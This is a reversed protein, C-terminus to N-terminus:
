SYAEKIFSEGKQLCGTEDIIPWLKYGNMCTNYSYTDQVDCYINCTKEVERLSSGFSFREYDVSESSQHIVAIKLGELMRAEIVESFGNPNGLENRREDIKDILVSVSLSPYNGSVEIPSYRVSREFPVYNGLSVFIMLILVAIIGWIVWKNM